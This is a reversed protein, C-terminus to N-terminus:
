ATPKAPTAHFMVLKQATAYLLDIDFRDIDAFFRSPFARPGALAGDPPRRSARPPSMNWM